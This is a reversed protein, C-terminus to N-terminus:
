GRETDTLPKTHFSIRRAQAQKGDSLMAAGPWPALWTLAGFAPLRSPRHRLHPM